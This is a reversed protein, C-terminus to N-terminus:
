PSPPSAAGGSSSSGQERLGVMYAFFSRCKQMRMIYVKKGPDSIGELRVLLAESDKVLARLQETSLSTAEITQGCIRDFEEKWTGAALAVSTLLVILCAVFGLRAVAYKSM